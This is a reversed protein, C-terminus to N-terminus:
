MWSPPRIKWLAIPTHIPCLGCLWIMWLWMWSKEYVPMEIPHVHPYSRARTQCDQHLEVMHVMDAFRSLHRRDSGSRDPRADVRQAKLPPGDYPSLTKWSM